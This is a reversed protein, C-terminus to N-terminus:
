GIPSILLYLIHTVIYGQLNLSLFTFFHMSSKLQVYSDGGVQGPPDFFSM